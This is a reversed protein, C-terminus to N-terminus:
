PLAVSEGGEISGLAGWIGFPSPGAEVCRDDAATLAADITESIFRATGDAIGCVVGGPHLSSASILMPHRLDGNNGHNCNPSNPPLITSFLSFVPAADGWRFGIYDQRLQYSGTTTYHRGNKYSRCTSFDTETSNAPNQSCTPIGPTNYWAFGGRLPTQTSNDVVGTGDGLAAESLMITNSTGDAIGTLTRYVSSNRDQPRGSTVFVGRPNVFGPGRGPEDTWDGSCLRYSTRGLATPLSKTNGDSPCHLAALSARWVENNDGPSSTAFSGVFLDYLSEQEIYPLLCVFANKRMRDFSGGTNNFPASGPPLVKSTSHYNHCALVLQKINNVCQSRRAAERAAQVAPLLLAILVGIIAIVVLLEVLTFATVPRVSSYKKKM